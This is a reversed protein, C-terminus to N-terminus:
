PAVQEGDISVVDFWLSLLFAVAAIKHEHKPDWSSMIAKAHRLAKNTDVGPKSTWAVGKLGFGFWRGVLKEWNNSRAGYIGFEPPIERYPPMLKTMDGVPKSWQEALTRTM